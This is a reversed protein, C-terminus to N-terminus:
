EETPKKKKVMFVDEGVSVGKYFSRDRNKPTSKKTPAKKAPKNTAPKKSFNKKPKPKLGKFKGELGEFTAFSMRKDLFGEINKFSLWDKPGVFSIAVGKNGARGTRGIRHVYEEAHKPMDFNIVHSVNSIDLGRSALDTTVLVKHLGREFENMIRNRASQSLEGSLAVAKIGREVFLTALRDTDARTATFVMM